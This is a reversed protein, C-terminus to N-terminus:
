EESADISQILSLKKDTSLKFRPLVKNVTSVIKIQSHNLAKKRRMYKLDAKYQKSNVNIYKKSLNENFRRNTILCEINKLKTLFKRYDDIVKLEGSILQKKMQHYILYKCMLLRLFRVNKKIEKKMM